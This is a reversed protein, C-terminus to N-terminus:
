KGEAVPVKVESKESESVHSSGTEKAPAESKVVDEGAGANGRRRRLVFFVGAALLALGAVGGIVGGIIAGKDVGRKGRADSRPGSASPSAAGNSTAGVTLSSVVQSSM